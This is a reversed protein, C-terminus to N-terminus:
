SVILTIQTSATQSGSTATVTITNTGAAAYEVDPGGCATVALGMLLSILWPLVRKLRGVFGHRRVWGRSGPLAPFIFALRTDNVPERPNPRGHLATTAETSISLTATGASDLAGFACSVNAPLHGCSFAISQNSFNLVTVTLSAAAGPAVSVSSPTIGIAPVPAITVALIAPPYTETLYNSDGTYTATIEFAGTATLAGTTLSASGNAVPVPSGINIGNSQFQVSGTPLPSSPPAAIQV